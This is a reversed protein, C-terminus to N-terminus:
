PNCVKCAEYGRAEADSRSIETLTKSRSLTRCGSRHYKKGTPTIIVTDTSPEPQTVVPQSQEQQPQEQQPQEQQPAPQAQQPEAKEEVTTSSYGTASAGTYDIEYGNATNFVFVREDISGDDSRMDVWVGRCIAESGEYAPTARYYLWGDAHADLYDRAKTECYAMGGMNDRQGVNQSRTGTVLNEEVPDGGLSFALLHSRNWLYGRYDPQTIGPITVIENDAPWGSPEIDSIDESDRDKAAAEARQGGTVCAVVGTTRGLRDLPLYEEMGPAVSDDYEAKGTVTYYDPYSQANWPIWAVQVRESDTASEEQQPQEGSTLASPEYSGVSTSGDGARGDSCGTLVLSLALIISLLLTVSKTRALRQM